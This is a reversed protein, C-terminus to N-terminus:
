NLQKILRENSATLRRINFYIIDLPLDVHLFSDIENRNKDIKAQIENKKQNEM